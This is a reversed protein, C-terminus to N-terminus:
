SFQSAGMRVIDGYQEHLRTLHLHQKGRSVIWVHYLKTVKALLPGPYRALPHFPSLRYAVISTILSAHYVAFSFALAHLTSYRSVLLQSLGAPIFVLLPLVISLRMPEWRNFIFHAM